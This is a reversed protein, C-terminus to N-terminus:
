ASVKVDSNVESDKTLFVKTDIKNNAQNESEATLQHFTVSSNAVAFVDPYNYNFAIEM